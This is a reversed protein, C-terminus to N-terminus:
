KLTKWMRRMENVTIQGPASGKKRSFPAFTLFSGLFPAALRSWAGLPGMCFAIIERGAALARPILSLVRLNDAPAAAWTVIKLIDADATLMKELTATLVRNDPTGAFDHWSLILRTKGRRAYLERRWGAESALEVDLGHVGLTLAEELLLRRAKESGQWRGGEDRRRNTAIVSGPLTRFLKKLDPKELYDLRIETWFGRRAARLYLRRAKIVTPEVVPVCLRLANETKRKGNETNM